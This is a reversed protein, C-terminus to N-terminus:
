RVPDYDYGKVKREGRGTLGEPVMGNNAPTGINNRLYRMMKRRDFGYNIAQRVRKDLLPSGKMVGAKENVLFALYETNLYPQRFLSFRTRYKEQMEGSYTLI